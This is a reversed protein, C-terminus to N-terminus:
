KKNQAQLAASRAADHVERERATANQMDQPGRCQAVDDRALKRLYDMM